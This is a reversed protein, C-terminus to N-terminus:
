FLRLLPLPTLRSGSLPRVYVSSIVTEVQRRRYRHPHM